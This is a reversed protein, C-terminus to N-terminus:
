IHSLDSVLALPLAIYMKIPLNKSHCVYHPVTFLISTGVMASQTLPRRMRRIGCPFM